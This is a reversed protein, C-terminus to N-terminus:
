KSLGRFRVGEGRFGVLPLVHDVYRGAEILRQQGLKIAAEGWKM